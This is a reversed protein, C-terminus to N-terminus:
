RGRWWSTGRSFSVLLINRVSLIVLAALPLSLCFLYGDSLLAVAFRVFRVTDIM